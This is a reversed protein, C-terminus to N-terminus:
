RCKEEAEDAGDANSSLWARLGFFDVFAVALSYDKASEDSTSDSDSDKCATAKADSFLVCLTLAVLLIIMQVPETIEVVQEFILCVGFFILAFCVGYHLLEFREFLDQAVFYLVPVAFAALASSTFALFMSDISDIKALTVDVEMFFNTLVISVMVPGLLTVHLRSDGDWHFFNAGKYNLTLRTGLCAHFLRVTWMEHIPSPEQTPTQEERIPSPEQPPTQEEKHHPEEIATIGLICLWSGLVFPLLTQSRLWWALDEYLFTQFIVQLFVTVGLVKTALKQPTQFARFISLYAFINELSFVLEMLYGTVWDLGSNSGDLIFVCLGFATALMIWFSLVKCANYEKEPPVKSVLVYHMRLFLLCTILFVADQFIFKRETFLHRLRWASDFAQKRRRVTYKKWEHKRFAKYLGPHNQPLDASSEVSMVNVAAATQLLSVDHMCQHQGEGCADLLTSKAIVASAVHDPAELAFVALALIPRLASLQSIM